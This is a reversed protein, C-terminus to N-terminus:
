RDIFHLRQAADRVQTRRSIKLKKLVHSVHTKVTPLKIHLAQGIEANSKGACLLQLVQRETESLPAEMQQAPSLFQPYYAGQRRAKRVVQSLFSPDADWTTHELLPLVAGGYQSVTRVFGFERAADLAAALRPKWDPSNQRYEAVARLLNLSIGDIHRRCLQCYPELPALTVQGAFIQVGEIHITEFGPKEAVLDCVAYPQITTNDEELSLAQDPADIELDQTNGTDDTLRSASFGQGTITVTVGAAPASRRAEFSQIRLIGAAM